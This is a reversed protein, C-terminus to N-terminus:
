FFFGFSTSITNPFGHVNKDAIRTFSGTKFQLIINRNKIPGYVEILNRFWRKFGLLGPMEFDTLIMHPNILLTNQIFKQMINNMHSWFQGFKFYEPIFVDDFLKNQPPGNEIEFIADSFAVPGHSVGIVKQCYSVIMPALVIAGAVEFRKLLITLDTSYLEPIKESITFWQNFNEECYTLETAYRVANLPITYNTYESDTSDTSSEM